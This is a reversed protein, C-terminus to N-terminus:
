LSCLCLACTNGEAMAAEVPLRGKPAARAQADASAGQPSVCAVPRSAAGGVCAGWEGARWLVAGGCPLGTCPRQLPPPAGSALCGATYEPAGPSVAQGARM